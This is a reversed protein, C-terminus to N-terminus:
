KKLYNYIMQAAEGRTINAKPSFTGNSGSIVGLGKAIAVYGVLSDDIENEDSFGTNFIGYIKAADSYNGLVDILYKVAKERALPDNEKYDEMNIRNAAYFATKSVDISRGDYVVYEFISQSLLAAFDKQTIIEDPRFLGGEFGVGIDALTKIAKEAYHGDIDTYKYDPADGTESVVGSYDLTKGNKADIGYFWINDLQYVLRAEKQGLNWVYELTPECKDFFIKYADADTIIGDPNEFTVDESFRIGFRTIRGNKKDKQALISDNYFPIGNVFRVREGDLLQTQGAYESYYKTIFADDYETEAVTDDFSWFSVVMGSKANVTAHATLKDGRFYMNIYYKDSEKSVSTNERTLNEVGFEPISKVRKEAEDFSLLGEINKLERMEADSLTAGTGDADSMLDGKASTENKPIPGEDEIFKFRDGSFADIMDFGTPVYVIKAEKNEGFVRYVKELAGNEFSKKASDITMVKEPAPFSANETFSLSYMYIEGSVANVSVTLEDTTKINNAFRRAHVYYTDGRLDTKDDFVFESVISPNAKENFAVALKKAEEASIKPITKGIRWALDSYCSKYMSQIIGSSRVSVNLYKQNKSDRWDFSYVTMNKDESTSSSFEPYEDGIGFREKVSLLVASMDDNQAFVSTFSLLMCIALFLATKKM